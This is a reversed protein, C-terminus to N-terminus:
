SPRMDEYVRTAASLDRSRLAMMRATKLSGIM